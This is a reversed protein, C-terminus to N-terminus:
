SFDNASLNYFQKKRITDLPYEALVKVIAESAGGNGYPNSVAALTSQFGTSYLTELAAKISERDPACDIVSNAKLRGKQRDGINVTGINFSPAEALGSSSNGVVGDIQALCSFYRLQGLSTYVHASPHTKAFERVMASLERGGTDANPMTFILTTDQLTDLAALLERMQAASSAGGELTVPHFTVLLNKKGFRLELSHELEERNLLKIRKIADIGMGGFNFVRDPHEGLQVVRRRYEEAAVFHLHSMKTISHRIAEDFAGETTEGGHLHAVPVGAIMASSTAAFIEFRDGLVVVIDPALREYADAFGIVGLGMSKTVATNTDSSLLMEVRADIHFGAEEIERYTSGFEPSLHMGTAVVQLELLPHNQIEGMLWRLLGFEARTGTVVCVKRTM